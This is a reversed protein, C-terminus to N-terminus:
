ENLSTGMLGCTIIPKYTYPKDVPTISPNPYTISPYASVVTSIMQDIIVERLAKSAEDLNDVSAIKIYADLINEAQERNM